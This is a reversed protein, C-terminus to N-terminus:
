QIQPLYRIRRTPVEPLTAELAPLDVTSFFVSTPPLPFESEPISLPAATVELPAETQLPPSTPAIAGGAAELTLDVAETSVPLEVNVLTPILPTPTVQALGKSACSLVAVMPMALCVFLWYYRNPFGNM